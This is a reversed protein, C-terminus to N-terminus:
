GKNQKEKLFETFEEESVPRLPAEYTVCDCNTDLFPKGNIVRYKLMVNCLCCTHIDHSPDTPKARIFNQNYLLQIAAEEAIPLENPSNSQSWSGNSENCIRLAASILYRGAQELKTTYGCKNPMWWANHEISWILYKGSPIAKVEYIHFVYIENIEPEDYLYESQPKRTGIYDGWKHWRWGDSPSQEGKLIPTLFVIFNRSDNELDALDIVQQYNDCVGYADCNEFSPYENIINDELYSYSSSNLGTEYIGKYVHKFTGYNKDVLKLRSDLNSDSIDKFNFDVLM